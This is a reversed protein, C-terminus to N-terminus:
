SLPDAEDTSSREVIQRLAEEPSTNLSMVALIGPLYKDMMFVNAYILQGITETTLDRTSTALGYTRFIIEGDTYDMEFSGILLEFNVRVLFEAMAPRKKSPVGMALISYFIFQGVDDRVQAACLWDGNEGQYRMQLVPQDEERAYVWENQDLFAILSDMIASNPPLEVTPVVVPTQNEAM